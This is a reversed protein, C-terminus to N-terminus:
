EETIVDFEAMSVSYIRVPLDCYISDKEHRMGNKEAVRVSAVNEAEIISILRTLGLHGFAHDRTARAAETALGRGWYSPDLRYGIESEQQGDIQQAILGCYGILKNDDKHVVAWLGFGHKAYSDLCRRIMERTRQRTHPGSKSFRMVRPDAMIPALADLDGPEFHRLALRETEVIPTM